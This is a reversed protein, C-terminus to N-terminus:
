GRWFAHLALEAIIFVAAFGVVLRPDIQLISSNVDYFRILGTSSAPTTIKNESMKKVRPRCKSGQRLLM